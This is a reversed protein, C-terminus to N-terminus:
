TDGSVCWRTDPTPPMVSVRERLISTKKLYIRCDRLRTAWTEEVSGCQNIKGEADARRFWRGVKTDKCNAM